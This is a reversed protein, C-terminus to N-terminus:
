RLSVNRGSGRKRRRFVSALGFLGGAFLTLTGPEPVSAPPDIPTLTESVLDYTGNKNGVWDIKFDPDYGAFNGGSITLDFVFSLTSNAALAPGAPTADASFCFFNGTGDCGKSNLGGPGSTFGSPATEGTLGVPLTLAFSEVGYRGGETDSPGNIGSIDLTFQATTPTLITYDLTYTIGDAILSAHAPAALALLGSTAAALWLHRQHNM